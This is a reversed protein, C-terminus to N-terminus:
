SAKDRSSKIDFQQTLDEIESYRSHINKCLFILALKVEDPFM